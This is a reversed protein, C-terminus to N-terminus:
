RQTGALGVLRHRRLHDAVAREGHGPRLRRDPQPQDLGRGLSSGKYLVGGLPTDGSPVGDTYSRHWAQDQADLWFLDVVHANGGRKSIVPDSSASIGQDTWPTSPAVYSITM